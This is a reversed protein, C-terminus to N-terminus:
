INFIEIANNTTIESIEEKEKGYIDAVKEVIHLLYASENRKGRYPVPSLYPADTELVIDSLDIQSLFKDINGNKYTVVGGIGLKMNYSIAQKAQEKNGTFCHFIGFLDESKETELIEFVEDFANRCHIVIPLKYQKALQIQFRFAEKQQTLTSTDWYLDIGIEGIAIFKRKKLQEVVHKLEILYNNKVHTPHLGSMLFMHKPYKKELDYMRVTYTSDIAPLFFRKIGNKLARSIIKDRDEDFAESYLHTHTDTLNM